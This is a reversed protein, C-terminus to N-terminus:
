RRLILIRCRRACRATRHRGGNYTTRIAKEVKLHRRMHARTRASPQRVHVDDHRKLRIRRVPTIHAIRRHTDVATRIRIAAIRQHDSTRLRRHVPLRHRSSRTAARRTPHLPIACRTAARRRAVVIGVPLRNNVSIDDVLRIHRRRSGANLIRAASGHTRVASRLRQCGRRSRRGITRRNLFRCRQHRGATRTRHSVTRVVRRSLICRGHIHDSTRTFRIRRPTRRRTTHRAALYRYRRRRLITITSRTSHIAGAIATRRTKRTCIRHLAIHLAVDSLM